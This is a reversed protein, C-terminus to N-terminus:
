LEILLKITLPYTQCSFLLFCVADDAALTRKGGNRSPSDPDLENVLTELEKKNVMRQAQLLHLKTFRWYTSAIEPAHPAPATDHLWERVAILEKLLPTHRVIAQALTATPTFPNQKLLEKATPSHPTDTKRVSCSHHTLM